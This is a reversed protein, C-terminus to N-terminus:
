AGQRRLWRKVLRKIVRAPRRLCRVGSEVLMHICAYTIVSMVCLRHVYISIPNVDLETDPLKSRRRVWVSQYNNMVCQWGKLRLYARTKGGKGGGPLDCDDIVIISNEHLGREAAMAEKLNHWQSLAQYNWVYDLSDLYLLDIKSCARLFSVSDLQVLRVCHARPGVMRRATELANADRDVSWLLGNHIDLYDAFILTSMGDRWELEARATGTEVVVPSSGARLALLGLAFRLTPYRSGLEHKHQYLFTM